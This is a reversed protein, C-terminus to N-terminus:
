TVPPASCHLLNCIALYSKHSFRTFPNPATFSSSRARPPSVLNEAKKANLCTHLSKDSTDLTVHFIGRDWLWVM